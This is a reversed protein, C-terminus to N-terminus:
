TNRAEVTLMNQMICKVVQRLIDKIVSRKSYYEVVMTLCIHTSRMSPKSYKEQNNEQRTRTKKRKPATTNNSPADKKVM